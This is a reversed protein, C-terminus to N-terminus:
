VEIGTVEKFIDKDFNPLSMVSEKDRDSLNDWWVQKDRNTVHITKLYGGTCEWTPNEEKESDIMNESDIWITRTHPCDTM